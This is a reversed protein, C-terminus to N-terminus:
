CSARVRGDGTCNTNRNSDQEEMNKLTQAIGDEADDKHTGCAPCTGDQLVVLRGCYGCNEYVNAVM